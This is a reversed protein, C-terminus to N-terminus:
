LVIYIFTKYYVYWLLHSIHSAIMLACGVHTKMVHLFWVHYRCILINVNLVHNVSVELSLFYINIGYMLVYCNPSVHEIFTRNGFDEPFMMSHLKGLNMDDRMDMESIGPENNIFWAIDYKVKEALTPVECKLTYNEMNRELSIMPLARLLPYDSVCILDLM